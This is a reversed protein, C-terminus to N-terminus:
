DTITSVRVRKQDITITSDKIKYGSKQLSKKIYAWQSVTGRKNIINLNSCLDRKMSTTLTRGLYSVPLDILRRKITDNSRYILIDIDKRIRGLAQIGDTENTTNMIALKVKPDKLDWGERMASNIVLFNYPEPIKNTRILESRAEIQLKSLPFDGNNDSWLVLPKYQEETLIDKIKLQGAITRSFALGKHGFYDFSKLRAILHSRIQEIHNIKYESLSVYKRINPHELYDFVKVDDFTGPKERELIDLNERTATYYFIQQNEHKSFLYKIAHILPESKDIKKYEPLSHIEDCHIQVFDGNELFKNNNETRLGFEAYTMVHIDYKKDGFSQKNKSTYMMESVGQSARDQKIENDNPCVDDKLFRNSVLMLIKGVKNDVLKEILTSKGSGVPALILNNGEFVPCEEDIIESLYMKHDDNPIRSMLEKVKIKLLDITEQDEKNTNSKELRLILEELSERERMNQIKKSKM